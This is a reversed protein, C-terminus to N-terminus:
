MRRINSKDIVVTNAERAERELDRKRKPDPAPIGHTSGADDSHKEMSFWDTDNQVEVTKTAIPEVIPEPKIVPDEQSQAVEFKSTEVMIDPEKRKTLQKISINAAVVLLIALPDLVCILIIIMLRVAKDITDKEGNGYFLEAVYKIPGVEAEIGLQATQLATRDDQLKDLTSQSDEISKVLSAREQEQGRRRDLGRSIQGLEIYKDLAADLQTVQRQAGDIRRQEQAIRTDLRAIQLSNDGTTVSHELHAKSLYGFVGMSTIFSLVMVAVVFYSKLLRNSETWNRYVWSATVLKSLELVGGMAAVALPSAPFIAMLGLISFYGAVSTISLAALILLAIFFM